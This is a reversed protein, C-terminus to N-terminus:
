EGIRSLYSEHAATFGLLSVREKASLKGLGNYLRIEARTGRRFQEVLEDAQVFVCYSGYCYDTVITTDSQANIEASSYAEGSSTVQIEHWGNLRQVAIGLWTGLAKDETFFSLYCVSEATTDDHDCVVRWRAAQEARVGTNAALFVLGIVLLGLRKM